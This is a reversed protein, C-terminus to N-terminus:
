EHHYKVEEMGHQRCLDALWGLGTNYAAQVSGMADDLGGTQTSSILPFIDAADALATVVELSSAARGLGYEANSIARAYGAPALGSDLRDPELRDRADSDLMMQSVTMLCAACRAFDAAAQHKLALHWEPVSAAYQLIAKRRENQELGM